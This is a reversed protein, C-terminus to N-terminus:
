MCSERIGPQAYGCQLNGKSSTRSWSFTAGETPSQKRLFSADLKQHDFVTVVGSSSNEQASTKAHWVAGVALVALATLIAKRINLM